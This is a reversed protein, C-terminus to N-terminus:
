VTPNGKDTGTRLQSNSARPLGGFLVNGTRGETTVRRGARAASAARATWRCGVLESSPGGLGAGKPMDESPRSHHDVRVFGQDVCVKRRGKVKVGVFPSCAFM